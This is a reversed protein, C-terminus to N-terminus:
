IGQELCEVGHRRAPLWGAAHARLGQAGAGGAASGIIRLQHSRGPLDGGGARAHARIPPVVVRLELRHHLDELASGNRGRIDEYLMKTDNAALEGTGIGPEDGLGSLPLSFGAAGEKLFFPTVRSESRRAYFINRHGNPFVASREFGFIPSYAGPVHYMDTMKQTYWWWYPWAGGQHDTSAGFDMAAVDIMYRYFDQLSGDQTGGGDWSLETHRHFDGRVIRLPKGDVPATYARIAKLDAAEATHGAKAEVTEDAATKWVPSSPSTSPAPVMGAYVQQRLPRHYFDEVRDDTPWTLALRGDPMLAANIRTSSRGKSNPLAIAKSWGKGDFRTLSYEWYGRQGPGQAAQINKRSKAAVWVSERGDSFVHPQYTNGSFASELSAEPAKWHGGVLCKIEPKRVGGLPVGPQRSRITYGQDKGWNPPGTEWAVWVRDSSDVAVTPKAEFRPTAAVPMEAGDPKGDRVATVFVDYNGNQYSDYAVWATGKSDFAVAPEWDNAARHTVRVDASWKSGDFTKLFINCNKGRFGQWVLAFRGKGDSALRPNIDPLPDSTLRELASWEQKEPDFRRAYIDWNAGVMQSWVAWVRNSSDVAVQPLYSDGSTGPVWQLNGWKGDKYHRIVVDDRDGVFSLWAIWMSGDPASAIAPWDDQRFQHGVATSSIQAWVPAASLLLAVAVQRPSIM